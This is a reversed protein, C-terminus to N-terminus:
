TREGRLLGRGRLHPITALIAAGSVIVDARGPHMVALERRASLPM